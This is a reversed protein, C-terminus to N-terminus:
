MGIGKEKPKTALPKKEIIQKEAKVILRLNQEEKEVGMLFAAKDELPREYNHLKDFAHECVIKFQVRNFGGKVAGKKTDKHNTLPSLKLKQNKDKRSILIHTHENAGDKTDGQKETGNQVEVSDGKYYRNNEDIAYYLLDNGSVNKNFNAAYLEMVERTYVRKAEKMADLEPYLVALHELEKESYNITLMFFKADEKALGKHNNDIRHVVEGRSVFDSEHSYWNSQEDLDKGINEKQLYKELYACTGKNSGKSTSTLKIVPM